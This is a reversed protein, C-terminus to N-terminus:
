QPSRTSSTAAVPASTVGMSELRAAVRFLAEERWPAAILQVGVPLSGRLRVPVVLVPVGIFSLPQTLMGTNPGAAITEGNLDATEDEIRFAPWPTAGAIVVDHAQLVQLVQEFYWRRFRQVQLLWAAPTFLGALLRDRIVPDFDHARRTLNARHLQAGEAPSLLFAAARARETEAFTVMSTIGLATAVADVAARTQPGINQEFYGGARAFRLGEVGMDLSQGVPEAARTGAAPDAADPGALLDYTLALDDVTRAFAGVHDMSSSFPFVGRRSIRGFTPKIGYLGCLAAPVRVSGGTDTGLALPVMGAAVAAASGGSSGGAICTPDHPNRTPGYHTNRTTFGFAYEDMNTAGVLIAGAARLRAVAVADHTAPALERNIKSGALTALGAIDFLNKAAFPVGALPPLVAGRARAADIAEAEALAQDRLVATFANIRGDTAAIASLAASVAERAGLTGHAIAQALAGASLHCPNM